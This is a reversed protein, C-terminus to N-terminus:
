RGNRVLQTVPDVKEGGDGAELAPMRTKGGTKEAMEARRAEKEAERDAAFSLELMRARLGEDLNDDLSIVRRMLVALSKPTSEAPRNAALAQKMKAAKEAASGTAGSARRRRREASSSGAGNKIANKVPTTTSTPTAVDNRQQVGADGDIVSKVSSGAGNKTENTAKIPTQTPIAGDSRQYVGADGDIVSKFGM